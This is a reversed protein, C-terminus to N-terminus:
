DELIGTDFFRLQVNWCKPCYYPKELLRLVRGLEPEMKWSLIERAAGPSSLHPHDYAL